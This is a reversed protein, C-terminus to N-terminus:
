AYFLQEAKENEGEDVLQIVKEYKAPIKRYKRVTVGSSWENLYKEKVVFTYCGEAGMIYSDVLTGPFEYCFFGKRASLKERVQEVSEATYVNM